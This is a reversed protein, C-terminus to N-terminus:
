NPSVPMGSEQWASIGHALNAVQKFGANLFVPASAKSRGGSRCYIYVQKDKPLKAVEDSFAPGNFDVSLAGQIHGSNFEDPTRVDVLLASDGKAKLQASFEQPTLNVISSTEKTQCAALIALSFVFLGTTKLSKM